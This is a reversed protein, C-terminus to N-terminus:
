EDAMTRSRGVVGPNQRGSWRVWGDTGDQGRGEGVSEGGRERGGTVTRAVPTQWVVGVEGEVGIGEWEM